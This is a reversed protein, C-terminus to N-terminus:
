GLHTRSRKVAHIAKSGNRWKELMDPILKPPHQLDADITIVSAELSARLGALLTAEKGFNRSFQIGKVTNSHKSLKQVQIFTDDDSGDGVIIIEYHFKSNLFVEQIEKVVLKIGGAENHSPIVVSILVGEEVKKNKAIDTQFYPTNM